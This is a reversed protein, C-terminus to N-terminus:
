ASKSVGSTTALGNEATHADSRRHDLSSNSSPRACPPCPRNRRRGMSEKKGATSKQAPSVPPFRLRDDDHACSSASRALIPGRLSRSRTRRETAPSSARLDMAGQHHGGPYAPRDEGASQRSLIEERGVNQTRRHALGGGLCINSVRTGSGSRLDTPLGYASRLLALRSSEKQAPAGVSPAGDPMPWCTKLRCRYFTQSTGSVRAAASPWRGSWRCM